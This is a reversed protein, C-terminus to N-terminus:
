FPRVIVMIVIGIMLLAPVENAIRAHFQGMVLTKRPPTIRGRAWGITLQGNAM